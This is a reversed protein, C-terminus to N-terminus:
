ISILRQDLKKQNAVDKPYYMDVHLIPGSISKGEPISDRISFQIYGHNSDVMNWVTLIKDINKPTHKVIGQIMLSSFSQRCRYIKITLLRKDASYSAVCSSNELVMSNISKIIDGLENYPKRLQVEFDMIKKLKKINEM